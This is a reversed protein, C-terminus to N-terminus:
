LSKKGLSYYKFGKEKLSVGNLYNKTDFIINTNLSDKIDSWDFDKFVPWETLLVLMDVDASVEKISNAIIFKSNFSLESYDAKPDYAKVKIEEDTLLNIIELPKTQEWKGRTFDPFKQPMGGESISKGSLPTVLLFLLIPIIIKYYVIQNM